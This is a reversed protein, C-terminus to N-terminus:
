QQLIPQGLDNGLELPKMLEMLGIAISTLSEDVSMHRGRLLSPVFIGSRMRPTLM